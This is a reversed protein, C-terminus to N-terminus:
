LSPHTGGAMRRMSLRSAELYFKEFVRMAKLRGMGRQKSLEQFEKMDRCIKIQIDGFQYGGGVATDEGAYREESFGNTAEVTDLAVAKGGVNYITLEDFCLLQTVCKNNPGRYSIGVNELTAHADPLARQMQEREAQAAIRCSQIATSAGVIAMLACVIAIWDSPKLRFKRLKPLSM